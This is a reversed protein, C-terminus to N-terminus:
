AIPRSGHIREDVAPITVMPTFMIGRLALLKDSPESGECNMHCWSDHIYCICHINDRSNWIAASPAPAVCLILASCPISFVPQILPLNWATGPRPVNRISMDVLKFCSNRFTGQQEQHCIRHTDCCMRLWKRCEELKILPNMHLCTM